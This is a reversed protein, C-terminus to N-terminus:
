YSTLLLSLSIQIQVRYEYIICTLHLNGQEAIILKMIRYALIFSRPTLFPALNSSKTTHPILYEHCEYVYVHGPLKLRFLTLGYAKLVSGFLMLLYNRTLSVSYSRVIVTPRRHFVTCTCAWFTPTPLPLERLNSSTCKQIKAQKGLVLVCHNTLNENPRSNKQQISVGYRNTIFSPFDHRPRDKM